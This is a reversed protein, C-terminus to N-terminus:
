HPGHPDINAFPQSHPSIAGNGPSTLPSSAKPLPNCMGPRGGQARIEKDRFYFPSSPLIDTIETGWSELGLLCVLLGCIVVSAALLFGSSWPYESFASGESGWKTSPFVSASSWALTVGVAPAACAQVPDRSPREPIGDSGINPADRRQGGSRDWTAPRTGQDWHGALLSPPGLRSVQSRQGRGEGNWYQCGM